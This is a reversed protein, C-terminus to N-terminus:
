AHKRQVSRLMSEFVDRHTVEGGHHINPELSGNLGSSGKMVDKQELYALKESGLAIASGGQRHFDCYCCGGCDTMGCVSVPAGSATVTHSARDAEVLRMMAGAITSTDELSTRMNHRVLELRKADTLPQDGVSKQALVPAEPERGRDLEDDDPVPVMVQKEISLLTDVRSMFNSIMRATASQDSDKERAEREMRARSRALRRNVNDFLTDTNEEASSRMQWEQHDAGQGGGATNGRAMSKMAARRRYKANTKKRLTGGLKEFQKEMFTLKRKTTRHARMGGMGSTLLGVAGGGAGRQHASGGVMTTHIRSPARKKSKLADELVKKQANALHDPDGSAAAHAVAQDAGAYMSGSGSSRAMHTGYYRSVHTHSSKARERVAIMHQGARALRKNRKHARRMRERRKERRERRLMKAAVDEMNTPEGDEDSSSESSVGSVSGEVGRLVDDEEEGTDSSSIFDSESSSDSEADVIRRKKRLYRRQRREKDSDEGDPDQRPMAYKELFRARKGDSLYPGGEHGYVRRNWLRRRARSGKGVQFYKRMVYTRYQQYYERRIYDEAREAVAFSHSGWGGGGSPRWSKPHRVATPPPHLAEGPGAGTRVASRARIKGPDDPYIPPEDAIDCRHAHLSNGRRACSRVQILTTGRMQHACVVGECTALRVAKKVLSEVKREDDGFAEKARRRTEAAIAEVRLREVLGCSQVKRDFNGTPILDQDAFLQPAELKRLAETDEDTKSHLQALSPYLYNAEGPVGHGTCTLLHARRDDKFQKRRADKLHQLRQVGSEYLNQFLAELEAKPVRRTKPMHKMVHEELEREWRRRTKNDEALEQRKKRDSRSDSAGVTHSSITTKGEEDVVVAELHDRVSMPQPRPSHDSGMQAETLKHIATVPPVIVASDDSESKDDMEITTASATSEQEHGSVIASTDSESETGDAAGINGDSTAVPGSAGAATGRGQPSNSPSPVLPGGGEISAAVVHADEHSSVSSVSVDSVETRKVQPSTSTSAEDSTSFSSDEEETTDVVVPAGNREPSPASSSDSSAHGRRLEVSIDEHTTDQYESADAPDPTESSYVHGFARAGTSSSATHGARPVVSPTGKSPLVARDGHYHGVCDNAASRSLNTSRYYGSTSLHLIVYPLACSEAAVAPRTMAMTRTSSSSVPAFGDETRSSQVVFDVGHGFFLDMVCTVCTGLPVTYEEMETNMGNGKPRTRVAYCSIIAQEELLKTKVDANTMNPSFFSHFVFDSSRKQFSFNPSSRSVSIVQTHNSEGFADVTCVIKLESLSGYSISQEPGPLVVRGGRVEIFGVFGRMSGLMSSSHSSFSSESCSSNAGVMNSTDVHAQRVDLGYGLTAVAM